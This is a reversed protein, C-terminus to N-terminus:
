PAMMDGTYESTLFKVLLIVLNCIKGGAYWVALPVLIITLPISNLLMMGTVSLFAKDGPRPYFNKM